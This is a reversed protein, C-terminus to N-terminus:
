GKGGGQGGGLSSTNGALARIANSMELFLRQVAEPVDRPTALAQSVVFSEREAEQALKRVRDYDGNNIARSIEGAIREIMDLAYKAKPHDRFYRKLDYARTQIIWVAERDPGLSEYELDVLYQKRLWIVKVEVSV